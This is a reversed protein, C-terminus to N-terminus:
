LELYSILIRICTKPPYLNLVNSYKLHIKNVNICHWSIISDFVAHVQWFVIEVNFPVNETHRCFAVYLHILRLFNKVKALIEWFFHWIVIRLVIWLFLLCEPYEFNIFTCVVILDHLHSNTRLIVIRVQVEIGYVLTTIQCIQAFTFFTKVIVWM